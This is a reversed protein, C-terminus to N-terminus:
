PHTCTNVQIDNTTGTFSIDVHNACVVGRGGTVVGPTAGSCDRPGAFINGMATLTANANNAFEMCIGGGGNQGSGLAAQLTNKGPSALTGLDIKSVDTIAGNALIEVGANNNSLLYSSRLNVVSGASIVLGRGGQNAWAVVGALTNLPPNAGTQNIIIGSQQNDNAVVSGAGSTGPAGQITVSSAGDVVIGSGTNGNFAVQNPTPLSIIVTGGAGNRVSVHLGDSRTPLLGNNSSTVGSGISLTGGAVQIGDGLFNSVAVDELTTTSTSGALVVVGTAATHNGGDLTLNKLGSAAAALRFASTNAPPAVTVFNQGVITVNAPVVIPFTEGTKVVAPQSPAASGVITVTTGAVAAAGIFQLARGITKFSCSVTPSNSGTSGSDSGNVPDVLYNKGAVTACTSCSHGTTCVASNGLKNKCVTDGAAGPCCEGAACSGGCCLDAANATCASNDATACSGAVCAGASAGSTTCIFTAGYAAMCQADSACKACANAKSLGCISGTPSACDSNARCDGPVCAGGLCIYPNTGATGYAATCHADDTVDTCAACATSKCLGNATALDCASNDAGCTASTDSGGDTTDAHTDALDTAADGGTEAGTDGGTEATADGGEGATDTPALDAPTDTGTDVAAMELSTDIVAREAPADGTQTDTGTSDPQGSDTPHAPGGGGCGGLVALVCVVLVKRM